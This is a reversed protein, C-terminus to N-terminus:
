FPFEVKAFAGYAMKGSDDGFASGSRFASGMVKWRLRNWERLELVLDLEQGINRSRGDPRTRIGADRLSPDSAPRQIATPRLRSPVSM